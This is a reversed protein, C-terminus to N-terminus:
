RSIPAYVRSSGEASNSAWSADFEALSYKKFRGNRSGPDHLLVTRDTHDWGVALAWHEVGGSAVLSGEKIRVGVIVPRGKALEQVVALPTQGCALGYNLGANERILVGLCNPNRWDRRFYTFYGNADQVYRSDNFRQSLWRNENAVHQSSPTFGRYYGAAMAVCTQGCNKTNADGPQQLFPVQLTIRYSPYQAGVVSPLAGFFGAVLFMRAATGSLSLSRSM